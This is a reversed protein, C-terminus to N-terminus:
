TDFRFQLHILEGLDRLIDLILCAVIALTPYVALNLGRMSELLLRRRGEVDDHLRALAPFSVRGVICAPIRRPFPPSRRSLARASFARRAGIPEGPQVM